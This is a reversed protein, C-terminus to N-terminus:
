GNMDKEVKKLEKELEKKTISRHKIESKIKNLEMDVKRDTSLYITAEENKSSARKYAKQRIQKLFFRDFGSVRLSIYVSKNHSVATVRDVEEFKEIEKEMELALNQPIKSQVNYPSVSNKENNDAFQCGSFLTIIVIIFSCFYISKRMMM